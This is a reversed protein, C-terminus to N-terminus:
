NKYMGKEYALYNNVSSKSLGTIKIIEDVSKGEARLKGVIASNKNEYVGEGVLIKRIKSSSIHFVEALTKLKARPPNGKAEIGKEPYLYASVIRNIFQKTEQNMNSM